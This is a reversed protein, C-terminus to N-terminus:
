VAMPVEKGTWGSMIAGRYFNEPFISNNYGAVQVSFFTTKADIKKRYEEVLKMVDINSGHNQYIYQKYESPNCGYLGGHGAQMDSYIFVHNFKYMNDGALANKFFIWIGNETSMGVQQGRERIEGHQELLPRTKDVKFMDLRDGFIGVYGTGTCNYATILASLNAIDSVTVSGYASTFAGHASGSNDSLSVVDGELKPFNEVSIQLCDEVGKLLMQKTENDALKSLERYATYYRFPFQKGGVVGNKLQTVLNEIQVKRQNNWEESFENHIGRLNRLLAMHGMHMNSSLIEMWNKGSSKLTEWTQETEDVELTGTKVIESLNPNKKPDPHSLRILDIIHGQNLYKKLQYKNTTELSQAWSRKIIGPLKSKNGAIELYIEFQHYLDDPRGVVQHIINKFFNPNNKNFEARLPHLAAKMIIVQPNLRMLYKTRLEVAFKLTAAFDYTLADDVAKDFVSMMSENRFNQFIMQGFAQEPVRNLYVKEKNETGKRYYQPEGRICSTTVFNLTELPSLEYSIGNMFNIVQKASTGM